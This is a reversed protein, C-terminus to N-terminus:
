NLTASGAGAARRLRRLARGVQWGVPGTTATRGPIRLGGLYAFRTQDGEPVAAMGVGLFRGQMWCWGPRLVTAFDDTLGLPGTVRLTLREGDRDTITARRAAWGAFEPLERELDAAMGWVAEFPAEVLTERITLGPVVSALVRARRLPDLRAQDVLDDLTRENM